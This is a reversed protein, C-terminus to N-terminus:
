RSQSWETTKKGTHWWNEFCLFRDTIKIELKNLKFYIAILHCSELPQSGHLLSAESVQVSPSGPIAAVDAFTVTQYANDARDIVLNGVGGHSNVSAKGTSLITGPERATVSTMSMVLTRPPLMAVLSMTMLGLEGMMAVM